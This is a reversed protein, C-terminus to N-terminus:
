YQSYFHNMSQKILQYKIKSIKEEKNLQKNFKMSIKYINNKNKSEKKVSMIVKEFIGLDEM